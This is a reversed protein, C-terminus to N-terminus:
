PSPPGQKFMLFTCLLTSITSTGSARTRSARGAAGRARRAAPGRTPAPPAACGARRLRRRPTAARRERGRAAREFASCCAAPGDVVFADQFFFHLLDFGFPVDPGATSGTGSTSGTPRRAGHEVCGLRRALARVALEVDGFRRCRHAGLADRSGPRRANSRPRTPWSRSGGGRNACRRLTDAARRARAVERLRSSRRCSRLRSGSRSTTSAARHRVARPAAVRRRAPAPPTCSSPRHATSWSRLADSEARVQREHSRGLRDQRIGCAHRRPPVAAAGAHLVVRGVAVRHRVHARSASCRASIASCRKTVPRCHRAAASRRTRSSRAVWAAGLVQRVVVSRFRDCRRTSPSRVGLPRVAFRAARPVRRASLAPRGRVTTDREAGRGRAGPDRAPARDGRNGSTANRARRQRGSTRGRSDSTVPLRAREGVRPPRRAPARPAGM